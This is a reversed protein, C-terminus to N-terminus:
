KAFRSPKCDLCIPLYYQSNRLDPSDLCDHVSLLKNVEIYRPIDIVSRVFLPYTTKPHSKKFDDKTPYVHKCMFCTHSHDELVNEKMMEVKLTKRFQNYVLLSKKTKKKDTATEEVPEDEVDEKIDDIQGIYKNFIKDRKKNDWTAVADALAEEDAESMLGAIRIKTMKKHDYKM